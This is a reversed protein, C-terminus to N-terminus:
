TTLVQVTVLRASKESRWAMRRMVRAFGSASTTTVPQRAWVLGSARARMGPTSRTRPLRSFYRSGSSIPESTLRPAASTRTPEMASARSTGRAGTPRIAPRELAKAPEPERGNQGGIERRGQDLGDGRQGHDHRVLVQRELAAAVTHQAEHPARVINSHVPLQCLLQGRGNRIEAQAGVHDHPMR